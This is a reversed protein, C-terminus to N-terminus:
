FLPVILRIEAANVIHQQSGCLATCTCNVEQLQSRFTKEKFLASNHTVVFGKSRKRATDPNENDVIPQESSMYIIQCSPFRSQWLM